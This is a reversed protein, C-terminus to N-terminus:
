ILNYPDPNVDREAFAGRAVKIKM